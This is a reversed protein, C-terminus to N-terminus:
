KALEATNEADTASTNTALLRPERALAPRGLVAHLGVAGDDLTHIAFKASLEISILTLSLLRAQPQEKPIRDVTHRAM